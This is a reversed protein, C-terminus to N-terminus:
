FNMLEMQAQVCSNALLQSYRCAVDTTDCASFAFILLDTTTCNSNIEKEKALKFYGLKTFVRENAFGAFSPSDCITIQSAGARKTYQAIGQLLAVDTTVPYPESATANPKIVIRKGRVAAELQPLKNLGATLMKKVDNGEVAVLLPRGNHLFLNNTRRVRRGALQPGPMLSNALTQFTPHVLAMSCLFQRRDLM